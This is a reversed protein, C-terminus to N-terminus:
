RQSGVSANRLQQLKENDWHWRDQSIWVGNEFFKQAGYLVRLLHSNSAQAKWAAIMALAVTPAERGNDVAPAAVAHLSKTLAAGTFGCASMVQEVACQIAVNKPVEATAAKHAPKLDGSGSSALTKPPSPEKSTEIVNGELLLRADFDGYTPCLTVTPPALTVTGAHATPNEVLTVGHSGKLRPLNLTYRSKKGQGGGRNVVLLGALEIAAIARKITRTSLGTKLAIHKVSPFCNGGENNAHSALRLLVLKQVPDTLEKCNWVNDM